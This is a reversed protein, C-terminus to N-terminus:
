LRKELLFVVSAPPYEPLHIDQLHQTQVGSPAELASRPHLPKWCLIFDGVRALDLAVQSICAHLATVGRRLRAALARVLSELNLGVQRDDPGIVIQEGHQSEISNQRESCRHKNHIFTQQDVSTHACVCTHRSQQNSQPQGHHTCTRNSARTSSHDAGTRYCRKRHGSMPM